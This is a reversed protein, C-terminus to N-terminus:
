GQSRRRRALAATLLGGLLLAVSGPEPIAEVRGHQLIVPMLGGASNLLQVDGLTLDTPLGSFSNVVFHITALIGSGTAGPNSGLYTWAVDAVGDVGFDPLFFLINSTSSLFAGSAINTVDLAAPDYSLM